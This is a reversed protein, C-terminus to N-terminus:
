ASLTLALIDADDHGYYRRRVGVGVFGLSRYLHQAARNHLAVELVIRRAGRDSAAALGTRMLLTGVGGRRWEPAVALTLIEGEDAVVRLLVFGVAAGAGEALIGFCTPSALFAEFVQADWGEAFGYAHLEALSAADGAEAGRLAVHRRTM